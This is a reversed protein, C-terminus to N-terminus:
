ATRTGPETPQLLGAARAAQVRRAATRYSVHHGRRAELAAQVAVVPSGDLHETYVAAVLELESRAGAGRAAQQLDRRGRAAQDADVPGATMERVGDAESQIHLALHDFVAVTLEDLGLDALDQATIGRGARKATIHLEVCTPAYDTRRGDIDRMEFRAELDPDAGLGTFRNSVFRPVMVDGVRVDGSWQGRAHRRADAAFTGIGRWVM